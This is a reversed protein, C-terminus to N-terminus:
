AGSAYPVAEDPCVDHQWVSVARAAAGPRDHSAVAGPSPRSPGTEGGSEPAHHPRRQRPKKYPSDSSPPRHSTTSNQTLRAELAEVRARLQTLDDQLTHVYAQVAAPTHEWDQPVFPFPWSPHASEPLPEM